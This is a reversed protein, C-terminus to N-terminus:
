WQEIDEGWAADLRHCAERDYVDQGNVVFGMPLGVATKAALRLTSFHGHFEGTATVVQFPHKLLDLHM